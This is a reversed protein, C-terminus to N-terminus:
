PMPTAWSPFDSQTLLVAALTTKLYESGSRLSNPDQAKGKTNGAFRRGEPATGSQIVNVGSLSRTYMAFEAARETEAMSALVSLVTATIGTPSTGFRIFVSTTGTSSM